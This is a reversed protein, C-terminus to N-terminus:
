PWQPSQNGYCSGFLPLTVWSGPLHIYSMVEGVERPTRDKNAEMSLLFVQIQPSHLLTDSRYDQHHVKHAENVPVQVIHHEPNSHLQMQSAALVQQSEHMSALDPSAEGQCSARQVSLLCSSSLGRATPRQCHVVQFTYWTGAGSVPCVDM